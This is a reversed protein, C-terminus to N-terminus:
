QQRKNPSGSRRADKQNAVKHPASKRPVLRVEVESDLASAVKRLMRLSHGDYAADELRCIVSATTGVRDALEQQTLNAGIRLDYLQQAVALNAREQRVLAEMEANGEVFRRRLIEVADTTKDQGKTM